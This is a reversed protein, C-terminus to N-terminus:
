VEGLLLYSKVTAIHMEKRHRQLDTLASFDECHRKLFICVYALYNLYFASRFAILRSKVLVHIWKTLFQAIQLCSSESCTSFPSPSARQRLPNRTFLAHHTCSINRDSVSCQWGKQTKRFHSLIHFILVWVQTNLRMHGSFEHETRSQLKWVYWFLTSTLM